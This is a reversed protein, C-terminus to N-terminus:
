TPPQFLSIDVLYPDEDQGPFMTDQNHTAEDVMSAQDDHDFDWAGHNGFTDADVDDDGDPNEHVQGFSYSESQRRDDSDLQNVIARLSPSIESSNLMDSM